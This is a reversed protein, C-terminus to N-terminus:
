GADADTYLRDLKSRADVHNLPHPFLPSIPHHRRNHLLYCCDLALTSAYNFCITLYILLSSIHPSLITLEKDKVAFRM